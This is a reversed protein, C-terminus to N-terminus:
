RRGRTTSTSSSSVLAGKPTVTDSPLPTGDTRFARKVISLPHVLVDSGFGSTNNSADTATATITDGVALGAVTLSGAFDGSADATAAGLYIPGEGHGSPDNDSDFIAVRAGAFTAQHAESGVYGAFSLTSGTLTARTFVPFDM